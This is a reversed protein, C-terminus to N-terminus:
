QGAAGRDGSGPAPRGIGHGRRPGFTQGGTAGGGPANGPAGDAKRARGPALDEAHSGWDRSTRGPATSPPPEADIVAWTQTATLDAPADSLALASYGPEPEAETTGGARDSTGLWAARTSAHNWSSFQGPPYVPDAQGPRPPFGRIPGRRGDRPSSAQQPATRRAGRPERPFPLAPPADGPADRGAGPPAR